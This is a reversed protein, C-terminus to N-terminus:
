GICLSKRSKKHSPRNWDAASPDSKSESIAYHSKILGTIQQTTVAKRPISAGLTQPKGLSLWVDQETISFAPSLVPALCLTGAMLQSLHHESDGM